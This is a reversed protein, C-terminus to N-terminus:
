FPFLNIGNLIAEDDDCNVAAKNGLVARSTSLKNIPLRTDM